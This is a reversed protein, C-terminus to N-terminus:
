GLMQNFESLRTCRKSKVASERLTHPRLKVVKAQTFYLQIALLLKLFQMPVTGRLMESDFQQSIYM